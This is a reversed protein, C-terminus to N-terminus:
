NLNFFTSSILQFNNENPDVLLEWGAAGSGPPGSALSALCNRRTRDPSSCHTHACTRTYTPHHRRRRVPGSRCCHTRRCHDWRYHNATYQRFYLHLSFNRMKIFCISLCIKNLRKEAPIRLFDLTNCEAAPGNTVTVGDLLRVRSHPTVPSCSHVGDSVVPIDTKDVRTARENEDLGISSEVKKEILKWVAM